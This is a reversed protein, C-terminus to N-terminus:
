DRPSPSTYLLCYLDETAEGVSLGGIAYGPFDLAALTRVSERRLDEYVVGQTIGFLAQAHGYLPETADWHRRAREAWRHTLDLSRRAYARDATGPPCEDLVMMIDSGIARQADVVNEPTFVLPSGDIHSRFRVGEETLKRRAALSFVQFGGSDTLIAGNWGM